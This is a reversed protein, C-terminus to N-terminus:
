EPAASTPLHPAAVAAAAASSSGGPQGPQGPAGGAGGPFNGYATGPAGPSGTTSQGSIAGVGGAGGAAGEFSGHGAGGQGGTAANTFATDSQLDLAGTSTVYIGGAAAGGAGGGHAYFVAAGGSGGAATDRVLQSHSLTLAGADYIGGAAAGGAVDGGLIGTAGAAGTAHGDAIILGDLTATVGANITFDSFNSSEGGGDILVGARGISGPQSGEITVNKAITLTSALDIETVDAAFNITDGASGAALAARLSGAGSDAGTTVTITTM